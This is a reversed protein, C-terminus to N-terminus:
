LRNGRSCGFLFLGAVRQWALRVRPQVRLEKGDLVRAAAACNDLCRWLWLSGTCSQSGSLAEKIEFRRVWLEM